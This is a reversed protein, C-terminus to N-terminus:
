CWDVVSCMGKAMGNLNLRAMQGNLSIHTEPSGAIVVSVMLLMPIQFAVLLRILQFKEV